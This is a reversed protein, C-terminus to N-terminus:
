AATRARRANGAPEADASEATSLRSALDAIQRQMAAMDDRLQQNEAALATAGANEQAQALFAQAKARWERAGLGANQVHGDSISALQEVTFVNYAAFNRVMSKTMAGWEKLPTGTLGETSESRQFADFERQFRAKDLDTAERVVETKADGAIFIRIHLRDEFYPKGQEASKFTNEIADNFFEAFVGDNQGGNVSRGPMSNRDQVYLTPRTSSSRANIGLPLEPGAWFFPAALAAGM